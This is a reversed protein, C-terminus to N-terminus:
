AALRLWAAREAGLRGEAWGLDAPPRDSFLAVIRGRIEVKEADSLQDPARISEKAAFRIDGRIAAAAMGRFLAADERVNPNNSKFDGLHGLLLHHDEAPRAHEAECLGILNAFDLELWPLGLMVVWHFPWVHHVQVGSGPNQGPLCAACHPNAKLFAHECAPWHPSRAVGHRAAEGAGRDVRVAAAGTDDAM